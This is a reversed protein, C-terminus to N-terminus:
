DVETDLSSDPDSNSLEDSPPEPESLEGSPPEPEADLDFDGDLPDDSRLDADDDREDSDAAAPESGAEAEDAEVEDAEAEDAEAEGADTEGVEAAPPEAPAQAGGEGAQPEDAVSVDSAQVQTPEDGLTPEVEIPELPGNQVLRTLRLKTMELLALFTLILEFRTYQGEFLEYFQWRPKSRLLDCLQNIRETISFRDFEIEHQIPKQARDLVSQFADLLKFLSIPALPAPGEVTPAPSGRAFVDRGQISREALREAADKYKQYELLRHVLEARPDVEAEAEQDEEDEPLAPLLMKSKLHTLTAAMVLYESAGDINLEDLLTIYEVYREAVFGVPIDMIDLEHEQILHLLLDLPGEFMPLEVRYGGRRDDLEGGASEPAAQEEEPVSM